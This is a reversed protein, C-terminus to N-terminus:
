NIYTESTQASLKRRKNRNEFNIYKHFNIFSTKEIDFMLGITKTNDKRIKGKVTRAPSSKIDFTNLLYRLQNMFILGNDLLDMRKNQTISIKWRQKNKCETYFISGEADYFGSLFNSKIEDLGNLIWSPISFEQDTKNGDPMGIHYFFQALTKSCFFLSYDNEKNKKKYVIGKINFLKYFKKKEKIIENIDKSYFSVLGHNLQLHGDGLLEGFIRALEKSPKLPIKIEKRLHLQNTKSIKFNFIM